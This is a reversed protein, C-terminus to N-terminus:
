LSRAPASASRADLERRVRAHDSESLSFRTFALAGVAYGLLPMGGLLFVMTRKVLESQEENPVYGALGLAFGASSALIANGLKNVFSWAAFYAGEKREGTRLEDLDIVDAKLAQGVSNGCAQATGAVLSSVVMLPWGNEGLGLLMGFGVGGMAMAVLWLRRKEFRRALVVWLPVGLVGAVVYISLMEQTLDPRHMVYKTVFPVLVTLGGLGLAEIFFVFLLLRAEPNGAVDRLAQVISVGGRGQYDSRERPLAPLPLAVLLAAGIGGLLGLWRAGERGTEPDEVLGVGIWFAAFLGIMQVVYKVAFVRNRSQPHHTLEVGLAAHPVQFATMASYFGLVSVAVWVVLAIGELRAPPAWAMWTFWAFPLMAGLLWARRRGLPTRTRDSWSGVIPDAIANWVKAVLFIAGMAVMPVGLRDTAFILYMVVFLTSLFAVGLNQVAYAVLVRLPLPGEASDLAPAPPAAQAM